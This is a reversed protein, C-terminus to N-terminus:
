LQIQFNLYETYVKLENDWFIQENILKVHSVDLAYIRQKIYISNSSFYSLKPANLKVKLTYTKIAESFEFTDENGPNDLEYVVTFKKLLEESPLYLFEVISTSASVANKIATDVANILDLNM